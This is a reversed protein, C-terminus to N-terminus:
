DAQSSLNRRKLVPTRILCYKFMICANQAPNDTSQLHFPLNDEIISGPFYISASQGSGQSPMGGSINQGRSHARTWRHFVRCCSLDCHTLSGGDWFLFENFQSGQLDSGDKRLLSASDEVDASECNMRHRCVLHACLVRWSGIGLWWEVMPM